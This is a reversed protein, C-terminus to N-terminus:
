ENAQEPSPQVVGALNGNFLHTFGCNVCIAQFFVFLGSSGGLILNGGEFGRAEILETVTWQNHSCIPCTKAATWKENLWSMAAERERQKRAENDEEM